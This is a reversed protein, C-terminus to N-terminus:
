RSYTGMGLKEFLRGFGMTTLEWAFAGKVATHGDQRLRTIIQRDLSEDALFTIETM